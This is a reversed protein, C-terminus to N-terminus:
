NSEISYYAPTQTNDPQYCFRYTVDDVLFTKRLVRDAYNINWLRRFLKNQKDMEFAVDAYATPSTRRIHDIAVCDEVGPQGNDEIETTGSEPPLLNGIVTVRKIFVKTKDLKEESQWVDKDIEFYLSKVKDVFDPLGSESATASSESNAAPPAAQQSSAGTDNSASSSSSPSSAANSSSSSNDANGSTNGPNGVVWSMPTLTLSGLRTSASTPQIVWTDDIDEPEEGEPEDGYGEPEDGYDEPDDQPLDYAPLDDIDDDTPWTDEDTSTTAEEPLYYYGDSPNEKVREWEYVKVRCDTTIVVGAKEYFFCSNGDEQYYISPTENFAAEVDALTAGVLTRYGIKGGQMAGTYLLRGATDYLEGKGHVAGEYFEGKYHMTGDAYYQTGVGHSKGAAFAGEYVLGGNEDYLKGAGEYEGAAFGGTYLIRGRANYLKGTGHYLNDAFEGEYAVPGDPSYLIGYGNYRNNDFGGEYLLSGDRAYLYGNGACVGNEIEGTYVIGGDFSKINAVGTFDKIAIDDYRFSVNTKIETMVAPAAEVPSSFMSFYIFVGACAALIILAILQKFVLFGGVKVYDSKESPRLTMLKKVNKTLPQILKASIVNINLMRQLRVILMRFPSSIATILRKLMSALLAFM